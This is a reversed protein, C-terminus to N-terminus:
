DWNDYNEDDDDFALYEHKSEKKDAAMTDSKVPMSSCGTVVSLVIAIAALRLLISM